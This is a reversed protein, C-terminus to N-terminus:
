DHRHRRRTLFVMLLFLGALLALGASMAQVYQRMWESKPRPVETQAPTQDQEQPLYPVATGRVLLRHSNIGYPTCTVLTVLDRDPLIHLSETEYPLVTQIEDVQYALTQGLVHIYFMDGEVLLTLDTFLKKDSLGSHASLVAHTGQGGVPLSTNELHGVGKQLVQESTGHYIPLYVSIAPIEIYGMLGDGSLNLLQQYSEGTDPVADPDFPDTVAFHSDRLAANYDRAQALADELLSADTAQTQQQYDYFVRQQQHEYLFNSVFPYAVLLLGGLILVGAILGRRIAGPARRRQSRSSKSPHM